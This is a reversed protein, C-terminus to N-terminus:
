ISHVSVRRTEDLGARPTSEPRQESLVHCSLGIPAPGTGWATGRVKLKYFSIKYDLNTTHTGKKM